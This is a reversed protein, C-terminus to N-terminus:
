EAIIGTQGGAGAWDLLRAECTEELWERLKGNDGYAEDATFWAFPLGLERVWGIMARALQPKTAFKVGRSGPKRAGTGTM